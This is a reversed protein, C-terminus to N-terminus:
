FPPKDFVMKRYSADIEGREQKNKESSGSSGNDKNYYAPPYFDFGKSVQDYVAKDCKGGILYIYQNKHLNHIRNTRAKMQVLSVFAFSMSAFVMVSFRDLDFGAGLSSQILLVCDDSENADKVVQGQDKTGGTMVYVQRDNGIRKVYDNIQDLYYCVLVVKRNGDIIKKVEKWKLESQEIRHRTHWEKMPEEYIQKKLEEEQKKVWKINIVLEEHIPVDVQDSMLVIHSHKELYPRIKLRWDNNPEYHMRGFKNTIHLFESRFDNIPWYIGLFCMLTHLNEPKSRIPTASSLFVCADKNRRIYNYIVTSRQSRSKDFLASCFNQCEDIVIAQYQDLDIKKIADNSCVDAETEWEILDEKWKKQIGVPAIVLAKKDSRLKLWCIASITKGCGAEACLLVRDKDHNNLFNDQWKFLKKGEPLKLKQM